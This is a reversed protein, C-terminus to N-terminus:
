SAACSRPIASRASCRTNRGTSSAHRRAARPCSVHGEGSPSRGREDHINGVFGETFDLDAQYGKLVWKGVGATRRQPVPHRQQHREPPIRGQARLGQSNRRALHPLQQGQRSEGRDDRRRDRRERRALVDPRRGLRGADKWRFDARVGGCRRARNGPLSRRWPGTWRPCTNRSSVLSRGSCCRSSCSARAWTLRKM